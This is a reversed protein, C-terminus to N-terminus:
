LAERLARGLDHVVSDAVRVGHRQMVQVAENSFRGAIPVNPNMACIARLVPQIEGRDRCLAPYPFVTWRRTATDLVVVSDATDAPRAHPNM